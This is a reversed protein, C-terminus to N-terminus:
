CRPAAPRTTACATPRPRGKAAPATRRAPPFARTSTPPGPRTSRSCRPWRIRRCGPRAPSGASSSSFADVIAAVLGTTGTAATDRKIGDAVKSGQHPTGMATVSAILDPAVAAVYCVTQGGHSHGILNFKTYGYAAQLQRLEALLQEGRVESANAASEQSVYVTAGGDRLASPIGYWYNLPGIADFGLLGHVLVIPYRTQTYSDAHAPSLLGLCLAATALLGSLLRNM